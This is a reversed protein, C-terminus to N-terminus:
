LYHENLTVHEKTDEIRVMAMYVHTMNLINHEHALKAKEMIKEALMNALRQKVLQEIGEGLQFLVEDAVEVKAVLPILNTKEISLIPIIDDAEQKYQTDCYECKMTRPNIHGGCYKCRYEKM